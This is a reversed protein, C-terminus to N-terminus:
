ALGGKEEKTEEKIEITFYDKVQADTWEKQTDTM